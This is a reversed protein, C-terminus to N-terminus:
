YREWHIVEDLPRKSKRVPLGAAPYGISVLCILRTEPPAGVLRVIEGAYQKKDGAVWCSGLGLAHAAVLMNQTAASGDELYYKTDRCLVVICVPAQSIFKGYDCVGAFRKRMGEDTVVVFEWPEVGRGTAALRGADVITEVLEREVPTNEYSRVSRRGRLAELADM